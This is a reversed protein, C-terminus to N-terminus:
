SFQRGAAPATIGAVFADLAVEPEVQGTKIAEDIELLRRYIVELNDLSFRQAQTSIKQAVFPHLNLAKSVNGDAGGNELVEKALLILRFQRVVMGFISQADQEELLRHLASMAKRGDGMGLADVLMFINVQGALATVAEVDEPEVQRRYNVYAVLKNIEQHALRTDDGVLGSLMAAASPSFQGGAQRAQAQIWHQLDRGKPTPYHRVYVRERAQEAWDLLWHSSAKSGSKKKEGVMTRNEVLLLATTEPVQDLLLKFKEQLDPNNELRALPNLVVVLRRSTLFPLARVTNELEALSLTRGELRTTNLSATTADGLRAELKSVEQAISFEDEGHLLYVVYPVESM